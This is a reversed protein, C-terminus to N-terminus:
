RLSVIKFFILEIKCQDILLRSWSPRFIINQCNENYNAIIKCNIFANDECSDLHMDMDTGEKRSISFRNGRQVHVLWEKSFVFWRNISKCGIKRRSIFLPIDHPISTYWPVSYHKIQYTNNQWTGIKWNSCSWFLSWLISMDHRALSKPSFHVFYKIIYAGHMNCTNM